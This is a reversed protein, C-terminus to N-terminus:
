AEVRIVITVDVSKEDLNKFGRELQSIDSCFTDKLTYPNPQLSPGITLLVPQEQLPGLNM